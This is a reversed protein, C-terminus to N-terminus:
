SLKCAEMLAAAAAPAGNVTLVMNGAETNIEDGKIIFEVAVGRSMAFTFFETQKTKLASQFSVVGNPLLKPEMFFMVEEKKQLYTYWFTILSTDYGDLDEDLNRSEVTLVPEGDTCQLYVATASGKADLATGIVLLKDASDKIAYWDAHSSYSFLCVGVLLLSKLYKM